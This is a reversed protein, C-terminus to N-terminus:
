FVHYRVAMKRLNLIAYRMRGLATNISVSKQEAIERFTLNQFYHMNVVERQDNPLKDVLHYLDTFIQEADTLCSANVDALKVSNFLDYGVDDDSVMRYNKEMRFQDIILNNAIRQLWAYFKGTEQYRGNRLTMIAKVFTEQFIDDALDANKAVFLINSYLRDKYRDLLVDFAADCGEIYHKVLADDTLQCLTKM